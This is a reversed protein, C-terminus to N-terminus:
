DRDKLKKAPIGGVITYPEIDKNVVSGAAVVAGEGITVGPLIVCNAGIWVDRGITVKAKDHGSGFIRGRNKPIKHNASIIQARYGILSRAGIEVGGSSTILVGLAIDVDDELVLKRGPAIWIGPYFVVRRGVISGNLRLFFAKVKNLFKYRPLCFLFFQLAEYSVVLFSRM